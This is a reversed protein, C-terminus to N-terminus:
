LAVRHGSQASHVMRLIDRRSQTAMKELETVREKKIM